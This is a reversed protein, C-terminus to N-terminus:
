ACIAKAAIFDAFPRAAVDPSSFACAPNIFKCRNQCCCASIAAFSVGGGGISTRPENVASMVFSGGAACAM